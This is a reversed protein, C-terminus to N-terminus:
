QIKTTDPCEIKAKVFYCGLRAGYKRCTMDEYMNTGKMPKTMEYPIVFLCTTAYYYMVTHRTYMLMAVIAWRNLLTRNSMSNSLLSYLLPEENENIITDPMKNVAFQDM